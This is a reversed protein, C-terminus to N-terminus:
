KGDWPLEEKEVVFEKRDKDFAVKSYSNAIFQTKTVEAGEKSKYKSISIRGEVYISDKKKIEDAFKSATDGFITIEVSDYLGKGEKDRGLYIGLLVKTIFGGKETARTDIYNANGILEFKNSNM